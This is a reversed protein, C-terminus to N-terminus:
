PQTYLEVVLDSTSYDQAPAGTYNTGFYVWVQGNAEARFGGAGDDTPFNALSASQGNISFAINAYTNIDAHSDDIVFAEAATDGAFVYNNNGGNSIPDPTVVWMLPVSVTPDIVGIMGEVDGPNSTKVRVAQNGVVNNNFNIEIAQLSSVYTAGAGGSFGLAGANDSGDPTNFVRTTFTSVGALTGEATFIDAFSVSNLSFIMLGVLLLKIAKM